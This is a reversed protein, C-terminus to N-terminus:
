LRWSEITAADILAPEIQLGLGSRRDVNELDYTGKAGFQLSHRTIDHTLLLKGYAGECAFLDATLAAFITGAATLISTEGVHCGIQNRLGNETALRHIALTDILGGHKSIKLNFGSAGRNEVFWVADGYTCISEDLIIKVREPSRKLLLPYAEKREAPLPQEIITLGHDCYREIREIADELDWAGNADVRLEVDDGLVSQITDLRAFDSRPDQGAKIKVQKIGLAKIRNLIPLLDNTKGQSVIGSYFIKDTRRPGFFNLASTSSLKGYTDLLALEMACKASPARALEGALGEQLARIRELVNDGNNLQTGRLREAVRRLTALTAQISEGTVYERPTGEGFGHINGDTIIEFVVASTRNRSALAHTFGIKFPIAIERIVFGTLKM